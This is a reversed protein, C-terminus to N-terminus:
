PRKHKSKNPKMKGKADLEAHCHPCSLTPNASMQMIFVWFFGCLAALGIIGLYGTMAMGGTFLLALFAAGIPQVGSKKVGMKGQYGCELCLVSDVHNEYKKLDDLIKQPVTIPSEVSMQTTVNM